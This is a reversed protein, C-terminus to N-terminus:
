RDRRLSCVAELFLSVNQFPLVAIRRFPLSPVVQYSLLFSDFERLLEAVPPARVGQSPLLSQGFCSFSLSGSSSRVRNDAPWKFYAKFRV